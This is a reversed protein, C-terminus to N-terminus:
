LRQYMMDFMMLAMETQDGDMPHEAGWVHVMDQCVLIGWPGVGATASAEPASEVPAVGFGPSRRLSPPRSLISRM